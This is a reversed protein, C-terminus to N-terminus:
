PNQELVESIVETEIAYNFRILTFGDLDTTERSSAQHLKVNFGQELSPASSVMVVEGENAAEIARDWLADAVRPSINGVYLGTGCEVLFRSLYGRLHEPVAVIRLTVFM